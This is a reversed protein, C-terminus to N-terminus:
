VKNDSIDDIEPLSLADLPQSPISLLKEMRPIMVAPNGSTELVVKGQRGFPKLIRDSSLRRALQRVTGINGDIVATDASFFSQIAERLFIYHTCGLVVADVPQTLYPSLLKKLHNLVDHGKWHGQEVFEMLGPCPVPLAGDGYQEMLQQFKPLQLTVPTAMVLIKGGHRLLSAPKLAPEMGIVPIQVTSRLHAAAVSTATNCAILIAKTGCAMLHDAVYSVYRMVEDPPKTGYPAHATDGYYIYDEQPLLMRATQLVSIGGVGSDFVGVPGNMDM